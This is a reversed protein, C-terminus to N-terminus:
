GVQNAAIDYKFEVSGQQEGTTAQPLYTTTFAGFNLNVHETYRDESGSGGIQNDIVVPRGWREGLKQGVLRAMVDLPGGAAFPVVFRVPKSPYTEQANAAFACSLLFFLIGKSM